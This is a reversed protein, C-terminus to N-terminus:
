RNLLNLVGLASMMLNSSTLLMNRAAVLVMLVSLLRVSRWAAIPSLFPNLLSVLLAILSRHGQTGAGVHLWFRTNLVKSPDQLLRLFGFKPLVPVGYWLIKSGSYAGPVKSRGLFLVAPFISSGEALFTLLARETPVLTSSESLVFRTICIPWNMSWSM